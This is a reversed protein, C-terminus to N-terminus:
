MVELDPGIKRMGNNKSKIARLEVVAVNLKWFSFGIKCPDTLVRSLVMFWVFHILGLVEIHQEFDQLVRM